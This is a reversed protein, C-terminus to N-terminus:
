QMRQGNVLIHGEANMEINSRLHDEGIKEALIGMMMRPMMAEEEPIMGSSILTNMLSEVGKAEITINGVPAPLGATMPSPAGNFEVGGVGSIMLGLGTFSLADITASIPEIPPLGSAAFDTMAAEDYLSATLKAKASVGLDLSLPAHDMVGAPDAMGWIVESLALESIKLGIKVDQEEDSASFPVTVEIGSKGLSAELPLPITPLNMWIKASDQSGSYALGDGSLAAKATTAGLDATIEFPGDEDQGAAKFSLSSLSSDSSYLLGNAIQAPFDAPDGGIPLANKGAFKLGTMSVNFDINSSTEPDAFAFTVQMESLEGSQDTYSLRDDSSLTTSGVSNKTSFEITMPLTQDAVVEDVTLSMADARHSLTLNEPSGSALMEANTQSLRMTLSVEGESDRGSAIIKEGLTISVTDADLATFVIDDFVLSGESEEDTFPLTMDAIRLSDGEQTLTATVEMGSDSFYKSWADWVDQPSLDAFVPPASLAFGCALVGIRSAGRPSFRFGM